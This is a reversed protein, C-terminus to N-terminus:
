KRKGSSWLELLYDAEETAEELTAFGFSGDVRINKELDGVIVSHRPSAGRELDDIIWAGFHGRQKYRMDIKNM